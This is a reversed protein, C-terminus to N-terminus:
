LIKIQKEFNLHWMFYWSCRMDPDLHWYTKTHRLINVNMELTLGKPMTASENVLHVSICAYPHKWSYPKKGWFPHNIISFGILIPHNPPLRIKPFVWIYQWRLFGGTNKNWRRNFGELFGGFFWEWFGNWANQQVTPRLLKAPNGIKFSQIIIM